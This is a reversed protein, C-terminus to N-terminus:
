FSQGIGLYFQAGGGVGGGANRLPWGADLRIPGVPTLYRLGLGGGAHWDWAGALPAQSVAGADAFLAIAFSDTVRGRLETSLGAFGRGGSDVGGLSVGLSQYPQGRVTGGGGSYFLFERPTRAIDGSWVAGAQARTALVLRGDAFGQYARADLRLRLGPDASDFGLYPLAQADVFVGRTPDLPDDRLDWTLSVPLALTGFGASFMRGPGFQAQEQRFAVGLSGSLRDGFRHALRLDLTVADFGYDREDARLANLGIELDTDATLTAPRTFRTDFVYGLGGVTANIGTVAAEVRLREAGGLLNRHLWYGSLTLGAQTDIEAGFGLRRPPAEALRAEIDLTGDANAQPADRLAVSTFTGTRRLRREARDIQTPDYQAGRQLGAIEAVRAPRTAAAGEPRLTGFRLMPGPDVALRVDLRTADHDAVIEQGAIRAQAYGAARWAGLAAQAAEAIMVSRAPAGAAFGEPLATGPALPDIRINGFRFLPGPDIDVRVEAIQRPPSFPPIDAAERGDVLVRIVPAYFGHEYMHGLLIGYEARATALIDLPALRAEAQAARLLSSARINEALAQPLHDTRLDLRDMALAPALAPVVAMCAVSLWGRGQRARTRAARLKRLILGATRNVTM